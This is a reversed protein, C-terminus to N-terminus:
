RQKRVARDRLSRRLTEHSQRSKEERRKKKKVAAPDIPDYIVVHTVLMFCSAVVICTMDSSLTRAAAVGFFRKGGAYRVGQLAGRSRLGVM